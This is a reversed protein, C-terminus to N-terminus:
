IDGKPQLTFIPVVLQLIFVCYLFSDVASIQENYVLMKICFCSSMQM